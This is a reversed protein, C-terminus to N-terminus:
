RGMEYNETKKRENKRKEQKKKEINRTKKKKKIKKKWNKKEKTKGKTTKRKKKKELRGLLRWFGVFIQRFNRTTLLRNEKTFMLNKRRPPCPPPTLFPSGAKM